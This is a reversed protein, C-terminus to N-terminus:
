LNGGIKLLYKDVNGTFQPCSQTVKKAASDQISKIKNKFEIFDIGTAKKIEQTSSIDQLAEIYGIGYNAHLFAILPSNDQQSASSWRAAQRILTQIIKNKDNSNSNSKSNLNICIIIFIIIILMLILKENM